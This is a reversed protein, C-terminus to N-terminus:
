GSHCRQQGSSVAWSLGARLLLEGTSNELRCM